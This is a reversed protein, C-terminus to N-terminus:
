KNLGTTTIPTGHRRRDGVLVLQFKEVSAVQESHMAERQQGALAVQSESTGHRQEEGM